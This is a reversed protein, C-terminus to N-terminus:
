IIDFLIQKAPSKVMTCLHGGILLVDKKKVFQGGFGGKQCITRRKDDMKDISTILSPNLLINIIKM